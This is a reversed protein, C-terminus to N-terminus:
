HLVAINCINIATSTKNFCVLQSELTKLTAPNDEAAQVDSASNGELTQNGALHHPDLGTAPAVVGIALLSPSSGPPPAPQHGAEVVYELDDSLRSM